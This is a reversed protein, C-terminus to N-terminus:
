GFSPFVDTAFRSHCAVCSEVMQGFYRAELAEDAARGAEALSAALGHFAEDLEIFDPPVAAMLDAQDQETLSQEMIFSERIRQARDAVVAHDGTVVADLIEHSASLIAQMEQQLLERLRPTLQSPVPEAEQGHAVTGVLLAGAVLVMRFRDSVRM